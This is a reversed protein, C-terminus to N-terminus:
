IFCNVTGMILGLLAGLWVIANLEKSMVELVIKEAEDIDLENIRNEIIKSIDLAQLIQPLRETIINRYASEVLNKVQEVQTERNAFLERMPMALLKASEKEVLEAVIHESNEVIVEDIHKALLKEVPQTLKEIIHEAGLRGALSNRTKRLVHETAIHAIKEGLEGQKLNNGILHTIGQAVDSRMAEVEDANLYHCAFQELTEDNVSQAAVFRDIAARLKEIIDHSLLTRELVERNMLNVSIANGVAEAIRHREKPIIGPTLPVHIGFINKATHPRFLMRIAIYNTVYGIASGVLPPVVYNLLSNM